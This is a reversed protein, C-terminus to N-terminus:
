LRAALFYSACAVAFSAAVPWAPLPGPAAVTALAVGALFLLLPAAFYAARRRYEAPAVREWLGSSAIVKREQELILSTGRGHAELRAETGVFMVIRPREMKLLWSAM